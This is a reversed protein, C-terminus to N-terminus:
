ASRRQARLRRVLALADSAELPRAYLYGQGYTCGLAALTQALENTEVGEATTKMGLAQALSLIARVIAIKDRDALMETVFSRDIKLIDIPLQQLYALNSYGTGFDDMALVTGLSRLAHMARATRDPDSVIASETLELTFREGKLGHRILSGEVVAAIDDRQIQIASLNVAMRMGCDGGCSEDLWVLTPAAEEMAWRGLPVILGSEEAVPIFKSPDQDVGQLDRWRALAEFAVIEGSALDCIPQFALRLQSQEIARRLATEMAFQDRAITFADTHYSEVQTGSKAAKVAFQANRILEEVDDVADEGHAIGIACDVGIEYDSLRFPAVLARRIRDALQEAEYRAADIGMLVGFEDGGIRALSDRARLAGKIRRAVTILLEDGALGGLCANLRGFRDLDIVLVAHRRDAAQAAEILDSFGERNPLGTLSDTTMERRLSRETHIQATLDVLGIQCRDRVAANTRAFTVRYYRCDIVEGISWEFDSRLEQSRLFADIRPGLAQLMASREAVVGLGALRYARNIGLFGFGSSSRVVQVAPIPILELDQALLDLEAPHTTAVDTPASAM